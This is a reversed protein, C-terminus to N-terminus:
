LQIFILVAFACAAVAALCDIALAPISVVDEDDFSAIPKSQAALSSAVPRGITLPKAGDIGTSGVSLSVKPKDVKPAEPAKAAAELVVPKAVPKPAEVPKAAEAPASAETKPQSGPVPPLVVNGRPPPLVVKPKENQPSNNNEASSM